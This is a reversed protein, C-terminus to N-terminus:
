VQICDIMKALRESIAMLQFMIPSLVEEKSPDAVNSPRFVPSLKEALADLQGNIRDAMISTEPMQLPAVSSGMQFPTVKVDSYAM